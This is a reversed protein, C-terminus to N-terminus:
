QNRAKTKVLITEKQENIMEESMKWGLIKAQPTQDQDSEWDVHIGAIHVQIRKRITKMIGYNHATLTKVGHM